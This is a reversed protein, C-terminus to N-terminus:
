SVAVVPLWYTPIRKALKPMGCPAVMVVAEFLMLLRGVVVADTDHVGAAQFM